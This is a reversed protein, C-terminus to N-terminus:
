SAFTVPFYVFAEPDLLGSDNVLITCPHQADCAGNAFAGTHVTLDISGAGTPDAVLM